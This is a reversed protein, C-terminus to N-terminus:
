KFEVYPCVKAKSSKIKQVFLSDPKTSPSRSDFYAITAAVAVIFGLVGITGLVTYLAPWPNASVAVILMVLAVFAVTAFFAFFAAGLLRFMTARWYACFNNHSPEWQHSMYVENDGYTNFLKQNLKYHWSDRNVNFPKM